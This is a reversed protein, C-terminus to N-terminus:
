LMGLVLQNPHFLELNCLQLFVSIFLTNFQLTSFVGTGILHIVLYTNQMGLPLHHQPVKRMLIVRLYNVNGAKLPNCSLCLTNIKSAELQIETHWLISNELLPPLNISNKFILKFPCIKETIEWQIFIFYFKKIM